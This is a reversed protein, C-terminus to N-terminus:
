LATRTLTVLVSATGADDRLSSSTSVVTGDSQIAADISLGGLKLSLMGNAAQVSLPTFGGSLDAGKFRDDGALYTVILLANTPGNCIAATGGDTTEPARSVSVFFISSVNLTSGDGDTLLSIEWSGEVATTNVPGGHAVCPSPGPPLCAPSLGVVSSVLAVLLRGRRHM